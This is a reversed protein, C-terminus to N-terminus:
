EQTPDTFSQIVELHMRNVIASIDKTIKVAGFLPKEKKYHATTKVTLLDCTLYGKMDPDGAGVLARFERVGQRDILVKSTQPGSRQQSNTNQAVPNGEEPDDEPQDGLVDNLDLFEAELSEQLETLDVVGPTLLIPLSKMLEAVMNPVSAKDGQLPLPRNVYGDVVLKQPDETAIDQVAKQYAAWDFSPPIDKDSSEKVFHKAFKEFQDYTPDLEESINDSKFEYFYDGTPTDDSM